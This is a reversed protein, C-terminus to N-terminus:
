KPQSFRHALLTELLALVLAAIALEYWIERGPVLHHAAAGPAHAVGTASDAAGLLPELDSRPEQALNSEAPDAQVAFVVKPKTEDGSFLQYAGALDTDAYHMLANHEGPEIKGIVQKVKDGPRLVSLDQGALETDVPFTFPQGPALDLSPGAGGTAYAVLRALLPVFAPHIPLTTWRTTATSSFLFVRGRGVAQEVVAPTGDAYRMVIQPAPGHDSATKLDLPFYKSVRVSGFNGSTPDNWFTTIPHDYDRSQWALFKQGEPPGQAHELSAPLLTSFLPDKNYYGIDTAPGPFVILAGGQTVYKAVNELGLPTLKAVNSLFILQYKGISSSELDEAHGMTVQTFYGQVQDRSVPVLAHRLFFGDRAAPDPNTTGEVILAHIQDIVLLALARQNDSPLRDGPISASLSHYGPDRFRAILHISQSQGPDIHEIMGEDQPPADDASLKVPLSDVATRGWNTVEVACSLPQNVAAVTGIMQVGSVALNDEGRDGVVVVHLTINRNEDQLQRVRDLERWAPIQSDTLLFIERHAGPFTKLLDMAQRLGPYLDTSRDTLPAQALFRRLLTFDQTPKPIVAKAENSILYLACSSGPGLKSLLDDGLSKALEFRTHVGDSQGMSESNDLLIIATSAGGSTALDTGDTLFAPRAFILVLVAVLLCRLLLLLIDELQVRRRNKQLSKLLFRSAAWQIQRLRPKGLLHILLPLAIAFLGGLIAPHLFTM